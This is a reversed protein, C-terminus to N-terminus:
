QVQTTTLQGPKFLQLQAYYHWTWRTKTPTEAAAVNKPRLIQPSSSSSTSGPVRVIRDVLEQLDRCSGRLAFTKPQNEKMARKEKRSERCLSGEWTQKLKVPDLKGLCNQDCCKISIALTAIEPLPKQTKVWEKHMEDQLEELTSRSICALLCWCRVCIILPSQNLELSPVLFSPPVLLDYTPRLNKPLLWPQANAMGYDTNIFQQVRHLHIWTRPKGSTRWFQRVQGVTLDTKIRQHQLCCELRKKPIITSINSTEAITSRLLLPISGHLNQKQESSPTPTTVSAPIDLSQLAEDIDVPFSPESEVVERNTLREQVEQLLQEVAPNREDELDYTHVLYKTSEVYDEGIISPDQHLLTCIKTLITRIAHTSNM